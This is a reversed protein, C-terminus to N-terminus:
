PLAIMVLAVCQVAIGFGSLISWFDNGSKLEGRWKPFNGVVTSCYIAVLSVAFLVLGNWGGVGIGFAGLSSMWMAFWGRANSSVVQPTSSQNLTQDNM